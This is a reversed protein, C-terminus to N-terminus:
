DCANAYIECESSSNGYSDCGFGGTCPIRIHYMRTAIIATCIQIQFITPMEQVMSCANLIFLLLLMYFKVLIRNWRYQNTPVGFLRQFQQFYMWFKRQAQRQVLGDIFIVTQTFLGGYFQMNANLEAAFEMQLPLSYNFIKFYSIYFVSCMYRLKQLFNNPPSETFFGLLDFLRLLFKIASPLM